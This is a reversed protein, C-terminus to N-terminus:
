LNRDCRKDKIEKADGGEFQEDIITSQKISLDGTQSQIFDLLGDLSEFVRYEGSAAHQVRGRWLPRGAPRVLSPERWIRVIFSHSTRQKEAM